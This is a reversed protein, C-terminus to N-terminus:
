YIEPEEHIDIRSIKPYAKKIEQELKVTVLHAKNVDIEPDFNCRLVVHLVDGVRRIQIGSVRKIESFGGAIHQIHSELETEVGTQERLVMDAASEIHVTIYVIDPNAEKIKKELDDSIQHAQKLSMDGSVELHLDVGLKGDIDQIHINHVGRSGPMGEAIEKVQEWLNEHGKGVPETHITVRANRVVERVETEIKSAIRHTEEFTLNNDLLVHMEVYIRKGTLLVSLQHFGKIEKISEIKNKVIKTIEAESREVLPLPL